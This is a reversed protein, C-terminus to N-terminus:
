ASRFSVSQYRLQLLALRHDVLQFLIQCPALPHGLVVLRLLAILNLVSSLAHYSCAISRWPWGCDVPGVRDRQHRRTLCPRADCPCVPPNSLSTSSKHQLLGWNETVIFRLFLEALGAMLRRAFILRTPNDLNASDAVINFDVLWKRIGYTNDGNFPVIAHRVDSFIARRPVAPQNVELDVLQQRLEQLRM